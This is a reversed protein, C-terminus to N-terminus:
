GWGTSGGSSLQRRHPGVGVSFALIDGAPSVADSAGGEGRPSRVPLAPGLVADPLFGVAGVGRGGRRAHGSSTPGPGAEKVTLPLLKKSTTGIQIVTDM